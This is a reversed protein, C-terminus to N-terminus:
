VEGKGKKIEGGENNLKGKEDERKKREGGWIGM